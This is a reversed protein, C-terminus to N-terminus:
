AAMRYDVTRTGKSTNCSVCLPQINEINSTGMNIVAIVHDATLKITPESKGCKLCTYNYKKKLAEWESLSFEGGALTKRTRRVAARIAIRPKNKVRWRKRRLRAPLPNQQNAERIKKLIRQKNKHNYNRHYSKIYAPDRWKAGEVRRAQDSCPRSCYNRNKLHDRRKSFSVKCTDCSLAIHREPKRSGIGACELSCFQTTPHQRLFGATYYRSVGCVPCVIETRPVRLSRQYHGTPM